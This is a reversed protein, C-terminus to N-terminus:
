QSYAKRIEPEMSSPFPSSSDGIYKFNPFREIEFYDTGYGFLNEQKSVHPSVAVLCALQM